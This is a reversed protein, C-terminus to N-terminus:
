WSWTSCVYCLIYISLPAPPHFDNQGVANRAVHEMRAMHAREKDQRSSSKQRRQEKEKEAEM